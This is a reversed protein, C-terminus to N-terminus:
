NSISICFTKGTFMLIWNLKTEHKSKSFCEIFKYKNNFILNFLIMKLVKLHIFCCLLQIQYFLFMKPDFIDLYVFDVRKWVNSQKKVIVVKLQASFQEVTQWQTTFNKWINECCFFFLWLNYIMSNFWKFYLFSKITLLNLIM